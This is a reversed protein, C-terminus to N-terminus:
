ETGKHNTVNKETNVIVAIRVNITNKHEAM